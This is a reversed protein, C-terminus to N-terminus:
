EDAADSTYLLCLWYHLPPHFYSWGQDAYPTSRYVDLFFIYSLHGWVDYGYILPGTLANWARIGLAGAISVFWGARLLSRTSVSM